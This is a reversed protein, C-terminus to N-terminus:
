ERGVRLGLEYVDKMATPHDLIEGREDVSRYLLSEKLEMDLADLFYKLILFTAEFLQKGKTGGVAVLYMHRKPEGKPVVPDKLAYKREFFSQCRDILAKVQAPPAYFFIPTTLILKDCEALKDYIENFDDKLSCRGTKKCTYIEKCPEVNKDRLIVEDVEAGAEKLGKVLEYYLLETNGKKRPSGM